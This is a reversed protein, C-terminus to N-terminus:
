PAVSAGGVAHSIRRSCIRAAVVACVGLAQVGNPSNAHDGMSIVTRAGRWQACVFHCQFPLTCGSASLSAMADRVTSPSGSSPVIHVMPLGGRAYYRRVLENHSFDEQPVHACSSVVVDSFPLLQRAADGRGSHTGNPLWRSCLITSANSQSEFRRAGHHCFHTAHMRTMFINSANSQLGRLVFSWLYLLAFDLLTFQLIPQGGSCGPCRPCNFRPCTVWSLHGLVPSGPCTVWGIGVISEM